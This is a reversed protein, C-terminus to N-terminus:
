GAQCVEETLQRQDELSKKLQKIEAEREALSAQVLFLVFWVGFDMLIVNFLLYMRNM